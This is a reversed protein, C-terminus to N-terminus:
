DHSIESVEGEVVDGSPLEKPPKTIKIEGGYQEEPWHLQLEVNVIPKDQKLGLLDIQKDICKFVVDVAKFHAASNDTHANAREWHTNLLTDLRRLQLAVWQDIDHDAEERWRKLMFKVDRAVTVLSSGNRKAITRYDVGALVNAAVLRRREEAEVQRAKKVQTKKGTVSGIGLDKPIRTGAM